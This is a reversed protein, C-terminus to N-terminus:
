VVAVGGAKKRTIAGRAATGALSIAEAAMGAELHCRLSKLARHQIVRIAGQSKGLLKEVEGYTMNELFRWVIVQRQVAPLTLIAARVDETDALFEPMDERSPEDALNLDDLPTFRRRRRLHKMALNHGIRLLWNEFPIGRPTFRGIAKWAQLFTESTLDDAEPSSAVLYQIHRYVRPSHRAYIEAFAEVDGGIASCVLDNEDTETAM